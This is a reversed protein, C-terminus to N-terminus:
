APVAVRSPQAFQQAGRSTIAWVATAIVFVLWALTAVSPLFSGVVTTDVRVLQVEYPFLLPTLTAVIATGLSIVLVKGLAGTTPLGPLGRRYVIALVPIAFAFYYAFTLPLALSGAVLAAVGAVFPPLNRGFIAILLVSAGLLVLSMVTYVTDPLGLLLSDTAPPGVHLFLYLARPLGANMPWSESIGRSGSWSTASGIWDMFAPFWEKGFILFSGIVLVVSGGFSVIAARWQRAAVLAFSLLALQPRAASALIIATATLWPRGTLLGLLALFMLPVVLAIMNARDMMWLFPVTAVTGLLVVVGTLFWPTKRVSWVAPLLVCLVCVIMYTVLGAQFGMGRAVFYFPLRLLRNSMPYTVEAFNPRARLSLLEISSYDSWCHVGIGGKGLDCFGDVAVYALSAPVDIRFYSDLIWAMVLAVILLMGLIGIITWGFVTGGLVVRNAMWEGSLAARAKIVADKPMRLLRQPVLTPRESSPPAIESDAGTLISPM